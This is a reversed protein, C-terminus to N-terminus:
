PGNFPMVEQMDLRDYIANWKLLKCQAKRGALAPNWPYQKGCGPCFIMDSM